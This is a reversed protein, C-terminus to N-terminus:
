NENGFDDPLDGYEHLGDVCVNRYKTSSYSAASGGETAAAILLSVSCLDLSNYRPQM